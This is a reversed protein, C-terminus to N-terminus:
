NSYDNLFNLFLIYYPKYIDWQQVGFIEIQIISMEINLSWISSQQVLWHLIENRKETM